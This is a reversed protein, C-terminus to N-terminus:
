RTGLRPCSSRRCNRFSQGPGIQRSTLRSRCFNSSTKGRPGKPYPCVSILCTLVGRPPGRLHPKRMVRVLLAWHACARDRFEKRANKLPCARSTGRQTHCEQPPWGERARRGARDRVVPRLIHGAPARRRPVSSIPEVRGAGRTGCCYGPLRMSRERAAM